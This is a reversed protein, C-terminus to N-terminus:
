CKSDDVVDLVGEGSGSEVELFAMAILCHSVGDSVSENLAEVIGMSGEVLFSALLDVIERQLVEDSSAQM